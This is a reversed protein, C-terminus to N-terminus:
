LTGTGSARYDRWDPMVGVERAGCQTCRFRRARPIEVFVLDDPLALGAFTFRGSHRCRTCWVSFATIGM